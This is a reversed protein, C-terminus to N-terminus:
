STANVPKIEEVAEEMGTNANIYIRYRSGNIRGGFEHCLVEKGYENEILSKRVYNEKFDPNLKQRAQEATLSAKPIQRKANHEYVYDSAEFGTVEGTDLGVRVSMKEPYILTDGQKRVYTLNGLNGFEDYNVAQMNKYGKNVLFQDAQKMAEQRSVKKAGVPRTDSYSILMGGNRTFDMMLKGNRAHEATATYSEWDTGKGNEQIQIKGTEMDAFKAAKAQIQEKSVPLGSLKKVSRKAFVNAVSPGWDLEPYEQVKKNMTRFGDVISNDSTQEQTAMATEADMWRLRDSLVKQQVQKLNKTIESSNQYLTKLNGVEKESLPEKTLDRMSAHYAFKSIRSLFEETENFPLMTLPLQNIENQAESTLRWVNMLGKRHMGQSTAHVALTNGIESHLKDMHFSLDHFARQYQNEAKILIANKEQNEQYGWVLAGILLVAFIPFMVSSLRKYM